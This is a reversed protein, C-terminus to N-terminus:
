EESTPTHDHDLSHRLVFWESQDLLGAKSPHPDHLLEGDRYLVQHFVGRPSKGAVFVIEGAEADELSDRWEPWLGLASVYGLFMALWAATDPNEPDKPKGSHLHQGWEVFHPVARLPRGLASAVAAAFCNGPRLADDHLITQDVPHFNGPWM